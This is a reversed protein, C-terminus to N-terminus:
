FHYNEGAIGFRGIAIEMSFQPYGSIIEPNVKNVDEYGVGLRDVVGPRFSELIVDYDKALNLFIEKGNEIKLNLTLSKKNRNLSTFYISQGEVLPEIWRMYDGCVPEEVKLVEAGLDALMMSCYPGPILRSLDLIKIKTLPSQM